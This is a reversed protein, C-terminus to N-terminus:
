RRFALMIVYIVGAAIAVMGLKTRFIMNLAVGCWAIVVKLGMLLLAGFGYILALFCAYRVFALAMDELGMHADM